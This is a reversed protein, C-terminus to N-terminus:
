ADCKSGTMRMQKESCSNVAWSNSYFCMQICRSDRDDTKLDIFLPLWCIWCIHTYPRVCCYFCPRLFNPESKFNVDECMGVAHCPLKSAMKSRMKNLPTLLHYHLVYKFHLNQLTQIKTRKHNPHFYLTKSCLCTAYNVKDIICLFWHAKSWIM